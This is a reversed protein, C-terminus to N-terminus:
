KKVMSLKISPYRIRAGSALTTGGICLDHGHENLRGIMELIGSDNEDDAEVLFGPLTGSPSFSIRV